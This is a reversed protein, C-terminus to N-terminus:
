LRFVLLTVLASVLVDQTFHARTGVILVANVVNLLAFLSVNVLTSSVHGHAFLMLTLVLGFAFHGSFMKDHCGGTLSEFPSLTRRDRTRCRGSSPLVTSAMVLARLLLLLGFRAAFELLFRSSPLRRLFPALFVLLFADKYLVHDSMDPLCAHGVDWVVQPDRPDLPNPARLESGTAHAVRTATVHVLVVFALFIALPVMTISALNFTCGRGARAADCFILGAEGVGASEEQVKRQKHM